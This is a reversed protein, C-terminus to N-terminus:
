SSRDQLDQVHSLSPISTARMTGLALGLQFRNDVGLRDMLRRLTNSVSRASIRLHAAATVDTHGTALLDVLAQERASLVIPTVAGASPDSGEAWHREFLGTLAAVVAPQAVELYGRELREPDAPLLAIARDLVILKLPVWASERLQFAPHLRSPDYTDQDAPPMGIIRIRTGQAILRRDFEAGSRASEADFAQETNITLTERRGTLLEAYRVRTLERSPLYRVQEDLLGGLAPVHLPPALAGLRARLNRVVRRHSEAVGRRDILRLRHTRLTAIVTEPPRASWVRARRDGAPGSARVAV